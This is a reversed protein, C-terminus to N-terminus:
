NKPQEHLRSAPTSTGGGQRKHEDKLQGFPCQQYPHYGELHCRRCIQRSPAGRFFPCDQEEHRRDRCKICGSSAPTEYGRGHAADGHMQVNDQRASARGQGRPQNRGGRARGGANSQPEKAQPSSAPKDTSVAHMKASNGGKKKQYQYALADDIVSRYKSTVNMLLDFSPERKTAHVTDIYGKQVTARCTFPILRMLHQTGVHNFASAQAEGTTTFAKSAARRSLKEVTSCIDAWKAFEKSQLEQLKRECADANERHDFSDLVRNYLELTSVGQTIWVDMSTFAPEDTFSLLTARFESESLPCQRQAHNAKTLFIHAPLSGPKNDGTFNKRVLNKWFGTHKTQFGRGSRAFQAETPFFTPPKVSQLTGEGVSYVREVIKDEREEEDTESERGDMADALTPLVQSMRAGDQGHLTNYAHTLQVLGDRHSLIRNIASLDADPVDPFHERM